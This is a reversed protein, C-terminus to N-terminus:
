FHYNLGARIIHARGSGDLSTTGNPTPVTSPTGVYLYEAKASWRDYIFAEYGGGVTWSWYTATNSFAGTGTDTGEYKSKGYVAGGTAYIMSRDFAYGIRGRLTGLYISKADGTFTTGSVTGGGSNGQFDGEVGYVINGAQMNYGLQVGGIFGNGSGSYAQTVGGVTATGSGSAWAWGANVGGYFGTWSFIPAYVPASKYTPRVGLDAAHAGSALIVGVFTAVLGSIRIRM